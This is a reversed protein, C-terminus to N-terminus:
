SLIPFVTPITMSTVSLGKSRLSNVVLDTLEGAAKTLTELEIGETKGERGTVSLTQDLEAVCLVHVTTNAPWPRTAMAEVADASYRSGDIALLVKM